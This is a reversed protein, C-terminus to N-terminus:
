GGCLFILENAEGVRYFPRSKETTFSSNRVFRDKSNWMGINSVSDRNRLTIDMELPPTILPVDFRDTEALYRSNEIAQGLMLSDQIKTKTENAASILIFNM